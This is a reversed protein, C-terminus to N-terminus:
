KTISILSAIYVSNKTINKTNIMLLCNTGGQNYYRFRKNNIRFGSQHYISLAHYNSSNVELTVYNKKKIAYLLGCYLISSASRKQKGSYISRMCNELSDLNYFEPFLRISAFSTAYYYLRGSLIQRSILSYVQTSPIGSIDLIILIVM